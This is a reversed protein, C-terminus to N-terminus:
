LISYLDLQVFSSDTMSELKSLVTEALHLLNSDDTDSLDLKESMERLASILGLRTGPSYLMM